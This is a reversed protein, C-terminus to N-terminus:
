RGPGVHTAPRIHVIKIVGGDEAVQIEVRSGAPHATLDAPDAVPFTMTMARMRAHPIPGHSITLTGASPNVAQVVAYVWPHDEGTKRTSDVRHYWQNLTIPGGRAFAPGVVNPAVAGSVATAVALAKLIRRMHKSEEEQTHIQPSYNRHKANATRGLSAEGFNSNMM